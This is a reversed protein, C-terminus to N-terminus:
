NSKTLEEIMNFIVLKCKGDKTEQLYRDWIMCCKNSFNAKTTLKSRYTYVVHYMM